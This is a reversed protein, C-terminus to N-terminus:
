GKMIFIEENLIRCAERAKDETFYTLIHEFHYWCTWDFCKYDNNYYVFWKDKGDGELRVPEHLYMLKNQIRLFRHNDSLWKIVGIKNIM